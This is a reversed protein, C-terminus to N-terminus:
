KRERTSEGPSRETHERSKVERSKSSNKVERERKFERDPDSQSVRM